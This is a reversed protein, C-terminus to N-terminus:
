RSAPFKTLIQDFAVLLAAKAKETHMYEGPVIDHVRQIYGSWFIQESGAERVEVVVKANFQQSDNPAIQEGFDDRHSEPKINISEFRLVVLLEPRQNDVRYGRAGLAEDFSESVVKEIFGPM